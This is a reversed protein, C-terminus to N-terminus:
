YLLVSGTRARGVSGYVPVRQDAGTLELVRAVPRQPCALAMSGGRAMLAEQIQVLAHAGLVPMRRLASLDVVVRPVGTAVQAALVERIEDVTSADSEGHLAVVACGDAASMSASLHADM